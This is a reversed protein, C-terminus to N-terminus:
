TCNKEQTGCMAIGAGHFIVPLNPGERPYSIGAYYGTGKTWGKIDDETVKM